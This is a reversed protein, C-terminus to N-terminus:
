FDKISDIAPRSEPMKIDCTVTNLNKKRSESVNKTWSQKPRSNAPGLDSTESRTFLAHCSYFM